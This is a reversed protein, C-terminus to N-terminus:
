NTKPSAPTKAQAVTPGRNIAASLQALEACGNPCLQQLKGLNVRARALAGLEVMAEGQVALAARDNPELTLAKNTFRISQGYLKQKQAVQAMVIYATRNRPDIALSAELADDAEVFKGAALLAQGQHLFQVSRPDLQDDARQGTAPSAITLAAAAASAMVALTVSNRM